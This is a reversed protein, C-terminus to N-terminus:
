FNWDVAGEDGVALTAGDGRVIVANMGFTVGGLRADHRYGALTPLPEVGVEATQQDTTTIQCRTCPKVFRLELDGFHLKSVHDEDHAELGDVVINPRFRNMPLAESGREALRENLQALSASGIVLVPYGDAFQTHAGTEGAFEPNCLRRVRPDFRVLRLTRGTFDSLWRAAADGQDIADVMSRWVITGRTRGNGDSPISLLPMGPARLGLGDDALSTEVLALRPLERQTVFRWPEERPDVIMWERDHRLGRETVRASALPIGRCSKVPYVFLGGITPTM